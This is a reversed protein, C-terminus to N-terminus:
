RTSNRIKSTPLVAAPAPRRDAFGSRQQRTQQAADREEPRRSVQDPTQSNATPSNSTANKMVSQHSARVSRPAAM